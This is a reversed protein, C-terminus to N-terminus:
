SLPGGHGRHRCGRPAPQLPWSPTRAPPDNKSADRAPQPALRKIPRLGLDLAQTLILHRQLKQDVDLAPYEDVIGFDRQM